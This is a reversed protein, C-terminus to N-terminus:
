RSRSTALAFIAIKLFVMSMAIDRSVGAVDQLPNSFSSRTESSGTSVLPAAGSMPPHSVEIVTRESAGWSPYISSYPLRLGCFEEFGFPCLFHTDTLSMPVDPALQPVM